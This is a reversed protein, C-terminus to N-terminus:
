QGIFDLTNQQLRKVAAECYKESLEIGVAELGELKAALLTTGSGMFPDLVKGGPPCSAVICRSVISLPFPCPHSKINREPDIRWVSMLTNKSSDWYHPTGFGYIYEHSPAFKRANLTISGGRDWVVESYFPWPFMQLPHIGARDRYRTKHNIWVLGRSLKVCHKFVGVVFAVYEEEPMDDSISDYGSNLKRSGEAMLGSSTTEPIQNYPPSSFTIDVCDLTPLIERCDGHYITRKGDTWYPDTM